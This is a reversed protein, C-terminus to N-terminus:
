ARLTIGACHHDSGCYRKYMAVKEPMNNPDHEPDKQYIEVCSRSITFVYVLWVEELYWAIRHVQRPACGSELKSDTIVCFSFKFIKIIPLRRTVEFSSEPAWIATSVCVTPFTFCWHSASWARTHSPDSLLVPATTIPGVIRDSCQGIKPCTIRTTRLIERISNCWVLAFNFICIHTLNRGLIM